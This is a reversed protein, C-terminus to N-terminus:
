SFCPILFLLCVKDLRGKLGLVPAIADPDSVLITRPGIRVVDGYKQMWIRQYSNDMGHYKWGMYGRWADTYRALFPGPLHNLGAQRSRIIIFLFCSIIAASALYVPHVSLLSSIAM